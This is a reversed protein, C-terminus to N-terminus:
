VSAVESRKAKLVSLHSENPNVLFEVLGAIIYDLTCVLALKRPENM